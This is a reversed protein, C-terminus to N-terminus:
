PITKKARKKLLQYRIQAELQAIEELDMHSKKAEELAEEARKKAKEAEEADINAVAIAGDVTVALVDSQLLLFGRDIAISERRGDASFRLLGPIVVSALPIHGPLVGLEGSETPITVSDVSRELVLGEPTVIELRIAM